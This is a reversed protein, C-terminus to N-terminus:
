CKGNEYEEKVANPWKDPENGYQSIFAIIWRELGYGVCGTVTGECGEAKINFPYTFATGHLNFSAVSIKKDVNYNLRMEYKTEEILQMKKYKQMKPMIFPDSAVIVEGCLDLEKLFEITKDLIARRIQSVYEQNGVIVIERVHYDKLRGVDTYNFRGENRFVSQTFTFINKAPLIKNQYEIYTHFCASPSLAYEPLKLLREVKETGVSNNLKNLTHINEYATCCFIAYQPSNNLYGTKKYSDVPLLVPYMKKVANLELAFSEFKKEFYEYLFIAEENLGIM